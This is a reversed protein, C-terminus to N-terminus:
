HLYPTSYEELLYMSVASAWQLNALKKKGIKEKEKKMRELRDPGPPTTQFMNLNRKPSPSRNYTRSLLFRDYFDFLYMCSAEYWTTMCNAWHPMTSLYRPLRYVHTIPWSSLPSQHHHHHHRHNLASPSTASTCLLLTSYGCLLYGLFPLHLKKRNHSGTTAVRCARQGRRQVQFVPPSICHMGKNNQQGDVSHLTKIKCLTTMCLTFWVIFHGTRRVALCTKQVSTGLFALIFIDVVFPWRLWCFAGATRRSDVSSVALRATSSAVISPLQSAEISQEPRGGNLKAPVPVREM